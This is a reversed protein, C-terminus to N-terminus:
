RIFLVEEEVVGPEVELKWVSTTRKSIDEGEYNKIHKDFLFALTSIYSDFDSSDNSSSKFTKWLWRLTQNYTDSKKM